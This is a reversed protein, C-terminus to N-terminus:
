RNELGTVGGSAQGVTAWATSIPVKCRTFGFGWAPISVGLAPDLDNQGAAMPPLHCGLVQAISPSGKSRFLARGREEGGLSSWM